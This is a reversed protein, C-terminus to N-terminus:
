MPAAGKAAPAVEGPEALKLIYVTGDPNATAVYRGEPTFAIHHM